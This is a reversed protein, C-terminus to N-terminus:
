KLGKAILEKIWTETKSIGLQIVAKKVIASDQKTIDWTFDATDVHEFKYSSYCNLYGIELRERSVWTGYPSTRRKPLPHSDIVLYKDKKEDYAAIAVYHGPVHAVCVGGKQLCKKVAGVGPAKGTYKIGYEKGLIKVFAKAFDEDTGNDPVRYHNVVAFDAVDMVPAFQGSLAYIMNVVALVGCGGSCMPSSDGYKKAGWRGDYQLFDRYPSLSRDTRILVLGSQIAENESGLTLIEGSPILYKKTAKNKILLKHDKRSMKWLQDDVAKKNKKNKKEVKKDQLFLVG